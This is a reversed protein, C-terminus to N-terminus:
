GPQTPTAFLSNYKEAVLLLPSHNLTAFAVSTGVPTNLAISASEPPECVAVVTVSFIINAPPDPTLVENSELVFVIVILAVPPPPPPPPPLWSIHAVIVASVPEAVALLVTSANVTEPPVPIVVDIM